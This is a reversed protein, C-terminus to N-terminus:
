AFFQLPLLILYIGIMNLIATLLLIKIDSMNTVGLLILGIEDPLPSIIILVGLTFSIFHLNVSHLIRRLDHALSKSKIKPLDKKLLRLVHIILVDGVAAGIGGIVAILIPNTHLALLYFAAISLPTTLLPAYMLGTIFIALFKVPLLIDIVNELHNFKIIWYSILCLIIFLVLKVLKSM